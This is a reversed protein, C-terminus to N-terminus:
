KVGTITFFFQLRPLMTASQPTTGDMRLLTITINTNQCKAFTAILSSEFNVNFSVGTGGVFSGLQCTDTNCRSVTNYTCNIWPLGTINIVHLRDISATGYTQLSGNVGTLRLNFVEYKKYMDGLVNELNINYFTIINRLSNISGLSNIVPYNAATDSSSIDNGNLVFNCVELLEM